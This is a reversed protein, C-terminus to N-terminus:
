PTQESAALGIDPEEGIEAFRVPDLKRNWLIVRQRIDMHGKLGPTRKIFRKVFSRLQQQWLEVLAVRRCGRAGRRGFYKYFYRYRNRFRELEFKLPFRNVSQGGLHTITVDPNFIIPYGENWIRRCLDVEEFHYFFQEDFGGIRKLLESRFMVCCGSQWDVLRESDGAWGVYLDSTFIDSVRGLRRLSLAALWFRWPTPFPYASIQYSGDANLVRCGFGGAAPRQDAFQVWRDLSGEHMITDPNLILVLEGRSARIGANNGKAFGLNDGNRIVRVAPYNKELYEPSGDISGNDSVIVEFDVVHTNAFISR